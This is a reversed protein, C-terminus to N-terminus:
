FDAVRHLWNLLDGGAHLFFDAPSLSGFLYFSLCVVRPRSRRLHIERVPQLLVLAPTHILRAAPHYYGGMDGSHLAPGTWGETRERSSAEDWGGPLQRPPTDCAASHQSQSLRHSRGM